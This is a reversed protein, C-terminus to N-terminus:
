KSPSWGHEIANLLTLQKEAKAKSSKSAHVKGTQSNMVTYTGDSNKVMSYPM